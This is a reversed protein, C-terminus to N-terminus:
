LDPDQTYWLSKRSRSSWSIHTHTIPQTQSQTHSHRVQCLTQTHKHTHATTHIHTLTSIHIQNVAHVYTHICIHIDIYVYIYLATRGPLPDTRRTRTAPRQQHPLLPLPSAPPRPVAPPCSLCPLLGLSATLFLSFVIQNTQSQPFSADFAAILTTAFSLPSTYVLAHTKRATAHHTGAHRPHDVATGFPCRWVVLVVCWLCSLSTCVNDIVYSPPVCSQTGHCENQRHTERGM